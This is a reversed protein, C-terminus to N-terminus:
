LKRVLRPTLVPMPRASRGSFRTYRLEPGIAPSEPGASDGRVGADAPVSALWVGAEQERGTTSDIDILRRAFAVAALTDM